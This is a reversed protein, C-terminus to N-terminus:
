NKRECIYYIKGVSYTGIYIHNGKFVVGDMSHLVKWNYDIILDTVGVLIESINKKIWILKSNRNILSVPKRTCLKNYPGM